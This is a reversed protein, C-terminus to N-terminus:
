KPQKFKEIQEKVEKYTLKDPFKKQNQQVIEQIDKLCMDDPLENILKFLDLHNM